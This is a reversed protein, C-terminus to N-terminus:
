GPGDGEGGGPPVAGSGGTGIGPIGPVPVAPVGIGYNLQAFAVFNATGRSIFFGPGTSVTGVMVEGGPPVTVPYSARLTNANVNVPFDLSSLSRAQGMSALPGNFAEALALIRNSGGLQSGFGSAGLSFAVGTVNLTLPTPNPAPPDIFLFAEYKAQGSPQLANALPRGFVSSAKDQGSWARGFLALGFRRWRSLAAYRARDASYGDYSCYGGCDITFSSARVSHTATDAHNYVWRTSSSAMPSGAMDEPHVYLFPTNPLGRLEASGTHQPPSTFRFEIFAPM